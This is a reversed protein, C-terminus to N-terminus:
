LQNIFKVTTTSECFFKFKTSFFSIGHVTEKFMTFFFNAADDKAKSFGAKPFDMFQHTQNHVNIQQKGTSVAPVPANLVNYNGSLKVACTPHDCWLMKSPFNTGETSTISSSTPAQTCPELTPPWHCSLAGLPEPTSLAGHPLRPMWNQEEDEAEAKELYNRPISLASGM